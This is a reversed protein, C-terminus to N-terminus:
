FSINNAIAMKETEKITSRILNREKNTLSAGQKLQHYYNDLFNYSSDFYEDLNEFSPDLLESALQIYDDIRNLTHKLFKELQSDQFTMVSNKNRDQTKM